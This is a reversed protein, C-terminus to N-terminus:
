CGTSVVVPFQRIKHRFQALAFKLRFFWAIDVGFAHDTWDIM